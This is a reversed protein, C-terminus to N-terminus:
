NGENKQELNSANFKFGVIEELVMFVTIFDTRASEYDAEARSIIDSIRVYESLPIVGNRFEKEAMEMNIRSNELNKSKISFLRQKLLLDNYQKIVLQRVYDRQAEAMIEAQNLEMKAQNVQNKRNVLDYFPIKVYAGVGYNFQSNKTAIISPSQGESTNTSFNDFTGYRSDAQFGVNKVWFSRQSKLNLEKSNIDINRFKVVADKNLASDIMVSLPPFSYVTDAPHIVSQEAKQGNVILSICSLLSFILIISNLHKM